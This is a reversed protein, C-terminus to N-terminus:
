SHMKRLYTLKTQISSSSRGPIANCIEKFPINQLFMEQLLSEEEHTWPKKEKYGDLGLTKVRGYIAAQSRAPFEGSRYIESVTMTKSLVKLKEDDESSWLFVSARTTLGMKQRKRRLSAISRGKYEGMQLVESDSLSKLYKEDEESWSNVAKYFGLSLAIERYRRYFTRLKMDGFDHQKYLKGPTVGNQLAKVIAATQEETLYQKSTKSM